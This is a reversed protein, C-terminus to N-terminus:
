SVSFENDKNVQGKHVGRSFQFKNVNNVEYFRLFDSCIIILLYSDVIVNM